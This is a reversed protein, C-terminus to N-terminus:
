GKLKFKNAGKGLSIITGAPLQAEQNKPLQQGNVFTGNSSMDIVKYCNIYADYKVSCHTRSIDKTEAGIVLNCVSADRGILIKEGSRMPIDAGQYDGSIGVLGGEQVTTPPDDPDFDANQSGFVPITSALPDVQFDGLPTPPVVPVQNAEFNIPDMPPASQVPDMPPMPPQMSDMAPMPQPMPDLAPMPQQMPDMAPMPPQMPNMAPMPQAAPDAPFAYPAGPAARHATMDIICFVMTGITFVPTLFPAVGMSGSGGLSSAVVVLSGFLLGYLLVALGGLVGLISVILSIIRCAKVKSLIKCVAVVVLVVALFIMLVTAIMSFVGDKQLNFGDATTLTTLSSYEFMSITVSDGIGNNITVLPLFMMGVAAAACVIAGIMAVLAKVSKTPPAQAPAPSSNVPYNM